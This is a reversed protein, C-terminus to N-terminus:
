ASHETVPLLSDTFCQGNRFLYWGSGLDIFLDDETFAIAKTMQEILEFSTEGYVQCLKDSLTPISCHLVTV